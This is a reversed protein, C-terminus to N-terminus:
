GQNLAHLIKLIEETTKEKFDAYRWELYHGRLHLIMDRRSPQEPITAPIDEMEIISYGSKEIDAEMEATLYEIHCFQCNETNLVAEAAVKGKLWQRAYDYIIKAERITDPVVVDFHMVTGDPKRVYTDWVAVKM